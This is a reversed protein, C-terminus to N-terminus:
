RNSRASMGGILVSKHRIEKLEIGIRERKRLIGPIGNNFEPMQIKGECIREQSVTIRFFTRLWAQRGAHEARIQKRKFKLNGRNGSPDSEKSFIREIGDKAAGGKPISGADTGKIIEERTDPKGIGIIERRLFTKRFRFGFSSFLFAVLSRSVRNRDRGPEDREKFPMGRSGVMSKGKDEAKVM